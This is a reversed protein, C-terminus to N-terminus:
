NRKALFARLVAFVEDYDRGLWLLHGWKNEFLHLESHPIQKHAYEAHSKPVSADYQSHVILTPCAIRKLLNTDVSQEIDNLFGHGSGYRKLADVLERSEAATIRSGQSSSFQSFFNRALMGPAVRGMFRVIRWNARELKPNFAIKAIKYMKDDRNLWEKTVASALILKSCRDPYNAAVELATRGGASIGYFVARDIGLKDLLSVILAAAQRPTKNQGLLTQGYGPRSPTILQYTRKDFGKHALIEYCNSHGGHLFVIPTGIGHVTYEIAGLPTNHIHSKAIHPKM